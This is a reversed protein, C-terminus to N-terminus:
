FEKPETGFCNYTDWFGDVMEGNLLFYRTSFFGTTNAISQIYTDEGFEYNSIKSVLIITTPPAAKPVYNPKASTM